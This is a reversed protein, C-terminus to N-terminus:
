MGTIYHDFWTGRYIDDFEHWLEDNMTLEPYMHRTNPIPMTAGEDIESRAQEYGLKRAEEPTM